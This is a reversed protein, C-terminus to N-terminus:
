AHVLALGEHHLGAASHERVAAARAHQHLLDSDEMVEAHAHHQHVAAARLEGLERRGEPEGRAHHLAPAESVLSRDVPTGHHQIAQDVGAHEGDTSVEVDIRDPDTAHIRSQHAGVLTRRHREGAITLEDVEAEDAVDVGDIGRHQALEEVVTEHGHHARQ